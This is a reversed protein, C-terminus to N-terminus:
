SRATQIDMTKMMAQMIDGFAKGDAAQVADVMLREPHFGLLHLLERTQTVVERSRHLDFGHRCDGPPCGLLLVGKAGHAFAKLIIGPDIGALCPVRLPIVEAPYPVRDRGASEMASYASWNCTFVIVRDTQPM